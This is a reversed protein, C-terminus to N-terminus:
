GWINSLTGSFVSSSVMAGGTVGILGLCANDEIVPLIDSGTLFDILNGTNIAYIDIEALVKVLCVAVTGTTGSALTYSDIKRVGKDTGALPLFPNGNNLFLTSVPASNAPSTMALGVNSGTGGDDTYTFTLAPSAAGLATQVTIIPFVNNGNTYRPLTAANNLVTPTGTVVLSPYYLLFDVLYFTTPVLTATPSQIKLATAHRVDPTVSATGVNLAGQTSGNM